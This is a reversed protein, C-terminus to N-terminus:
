PMTWGALRVHEGGDLFESGGGAMLLATQNRPLSVKLEAKVLGMAWEAERGQGSSPGWELTLQGLGKEQNKQTELAGDRPNM